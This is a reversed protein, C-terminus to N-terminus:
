EIGQKELDHYYRSSQVLEDFLKGDRVVGHFMVIVEKEYHILM